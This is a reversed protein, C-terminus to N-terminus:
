TGTFAGALVAAAEGLAVAAAFAVAVAAAVTAGAGAGIAAGAALLFTVAGTCDQGAHVAALVAVAGRARDLPFDPIM